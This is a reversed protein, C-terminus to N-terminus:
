AWGRVGERLRSPSCTREQGYGSMAHFMARTACPLNERAPVCFRPFARHVIPFFPFPVYCPGDRYSLAALPPLHDGAMM